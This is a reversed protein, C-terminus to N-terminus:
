SRGPILSNRKRKMEDESCSLVPPPFCLLLSRYSGPLVSVQQPHEWSREADSCGVSCVKWVQVSVSWVEKLGEGTRHMCLKGNIVKHGQIVLSRQGRSM